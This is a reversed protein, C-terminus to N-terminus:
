ENKIFGKLISFILFSGSAVAIAGITFLIILIRYDITLDVEALVEQPPFEEVQVTASYTQTDSQWVTGVLIDEILFVETELPLLARRLNESRKSFSDQVQGQFTIEQLKLFTNSQNKIELVLDFPIGAHPEGSPILKSEFNEQIVPFANTSSVDAQQLFTTDIYIGLAPNEGISPHYIGMGVKDFNTNSGSFSTQWKMDQYVDYVVVQTGDTVEVWAHPYSSIEPFLQYGFKIRASLGFSEAFYTMLESLTKSDFQNSAAPNNQIESLELNPKPNTSLRSNEILYNSIYDLKVFPNEVPGSADRLESILRANEELNFNYPQIQFPSIPTATKQIQAQFNIEPNRFTAISAYYNEFRDFFGEIANISSPYAVRQSETESPLNFLIDKGLERPAVKELTSLNLNLSNGWVLLVYDQATLSLTQTSITDGVVQSIPSTNIITEGFTKPYTINLTNGQLSDIFDGTLYIYFTSGLNEVLDPVIFSYNITRTEGNTIADSIFDTSITTQGTTRDIQPFQTRTGLQVEIERVREFPVTIQHSSIVNLPDNNFLNFSLDIRASEDQFIVVEMKYNTVYDVQAKAPPVYFFSGLVSFNILALIITFKKLSNLIM